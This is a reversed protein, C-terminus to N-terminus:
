IEGDAGPPRADTTEPQEGAPHETMEEPRGVSAMSAGKQIPMGALARNQVAKVLRQRRIETLLVRFCRQKGRM